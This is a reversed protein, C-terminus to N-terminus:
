DEEPISELAPRWGGHFGDVDSARGAESVWIGRLKRKVSSHKLDKSSSLIQNLEELTVVNNEENSKFRMKKKKKKQKIKEGEDAAVEAGELNSATLERREQIVEARRGQPEPQDNQPLIKIGTLCNGM